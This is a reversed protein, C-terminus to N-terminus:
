SGVVVKFGGFSFREMDWPMKMDKGKEIQKEMDAMVKKNIQDRQKKSKYTIFSFWLTENSKLTTLKPFTLFPMGGMDPTLDDGMCEKYDLAGYKMWMKKGETAMKKYAAVNNKPIVIVFGDVYTGKM